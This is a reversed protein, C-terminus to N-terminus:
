SISLNQEHLLLQTDVVSELDWWGHCRMECYTKTEKEGYSEQISSCGGGVVYCQWSPEYHMPIPTDNFYGSNHEINEGKAMWWFSLNEHFSNSAM